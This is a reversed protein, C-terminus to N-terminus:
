AKAKSGRAASKKTGKMVSKKVAKQFKKTQLLATKLLMNMKKHDELGKIVNSSGGVIGESTDSAQKNLIRRMGLKFISLM